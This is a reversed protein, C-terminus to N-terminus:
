VNLGDCGRVNWQGLVCRAFQRMGFIDQIEWENNVRLILYERSFKVNIHKGSRLVVYTRTLRLGVDM